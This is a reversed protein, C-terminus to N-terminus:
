MLVCAVAALLVWLPRRAGGVIRDRLPQVIASLERAASAPSAGPRLRGVVDLVHARRGWREMGEVALPLWLDQGAPYRFSEPMVGLITHARGDLVIARGAIAPDSAFRRAWLDHSLVAVPATEEAASFPRGLQPAAGMAPFFSASVRAAILREPESAGTLTVPRGDFIAALHLFERSRSRWELFDPPSVPIGTDRGIATSVFFLRGPDPYPLPKLLVANVLS